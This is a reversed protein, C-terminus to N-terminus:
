ATAGRSSRSRGRRGIGRQMLEHVFCTYAEASPPEGLQQARFARQRAPETAFFFVLGGILHFYAITPDVARLSGESTGRAFIERAGRFVAAVRPLRRPSIRGSVLIEHLLLGPFAQHRTAIESFADIFDHLLEDAPRKSDQLLAVRARAEDLIGDVIAEYLKRKGGFHYNIMAKNVGARRALAEVRVGDFGAEAFLEAGARLLAERTADPDRRERRRRTM